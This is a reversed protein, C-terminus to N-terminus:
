CIYHTIVDEFKKFIDMSFVAICICVMVIVELVILIPNKMSYLFINIECIELIWFILAHFIFIPLTRKGIYEFTRCRSRSFSLILLIIIVGAILFFACREGM